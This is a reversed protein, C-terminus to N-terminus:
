KDIIILKRAKSVKSSGDSSLRVRYLYIGTQLRGGIDSTLDWDVTYAGTTSAGTETHRWLPRGSMDMVEIEVDMQSGARDHNIIFTTGTTAPNDTCSISFCNPQLGNVVNFTLEAVSSNNFIDWAKFQLKHKGPALEPINYYTSGKTYSGFDYVFNDNLIYTKAMEGDIILELDHGIGNGTTNLGDKDSLEAVFYPTTNVDGGNTFSPSNLYCYVSPGISDTGAVATGGVTFNESSGNATAGNDPNHAFLNILGTEDSYNIDKPVAFSIAFRGGRISDSGNYLTKTRDYYTFAKTSGTEKSTDWLRCVVEKKSDRVVATVTGDFSTDEAGDKVVHGKIVAVSGAKLQAKNIGNVAMGNISDVVVKQQPVNLALAPDGLLSFNLKNQSLDSGTIILQNKARRQAEGLSTYRGNRKTLIENTFAHNIADNRDTYVTRTTGYFAMSGGKSNFLSAEGFNSISADYPMIDCSATIWLPFYTNSFTEFDHVVLVREHSIQDARGHGSYNMILAGAVQQQKISKSAEPFRFGVSSSRREYADWMVRKVQMGPNLSENLTALSEATKMHVNNNGDDGMYMAINQWPGPTKNELYAITKDVVIKAEAEDRAPIRGVAVDQKDNKPRTVSRYPLSAEKGEGDDIACFYGDDVFSTAENFSNESEFTLLFDDPSFSRWDLSLCRNDWAGDGFLLLYKPMDAETEARDYMMKLYRRYANADPTGSSFENFLEDAPVVRVRMSDAQEHYAKLRDAQTKLKQTTPIIIVMDYFGEGHLDQNTINYVYEPTPFTGNALDPAPRAEDSRLDLYDPRIPGGSTTQISVTNSAKINDVNFKVVSRSGKDYTVLQINVTGLTEGNFTVQAKSNVGASLAVTLTGGGNEPANCELTYEKGSGSPIPSNEFLHVGGHYWAYNDVEHLTHHFYESPYFSEVFKDSEVTAPEQGDDTLFYYGYDSYYNRVREADLDNGDWNVPGIAYFLRKGNVTCTPM